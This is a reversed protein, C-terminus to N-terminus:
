DSIFADVKTAIIEKEYDTYYAHWSDKLILIEHKTNVLLENFLYSSELTATEDSKSHIVLTPTLVKSLNKKTKKILIYPQLLVRIWFPMSIYYPKGISNLQKYSKIIKEDVKGLFLKARKPLLAVNFLNLVLPTALLVIGKLDFELSANLALLGGISHGVIYINKYKSYKRLQNELYEEWDKIKAKAFCFGSGGHGPLLLSVASFGKEYVKEVLDSFQLPSGMLGHVFIVITDSNEHLKEIAFHM